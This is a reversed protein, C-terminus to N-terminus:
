IVCLMGSQVTACNLHLLVSLALAPVDRDPRTAEAAEPAMPMANDASLRPKSGAIAEWTQPLTVQLDFTSSVLM